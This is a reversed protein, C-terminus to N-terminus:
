GNYTRAQIELEQVFEDAWERPNDAGNVNFTATVNMPNSDSKVKSPMSGALGLAYRNNFMSSISNAGMKVNSLDLVPKIVPNTDIGDTINSLALTRKRLAQVAESGVEDGAIGSKHIWKRLGIVFGEGTFQGSKMAKKSPSGERIAAKIGQLARSGLRYGASYAAALKAPTTIGNTFGSAVNGGSTGASSKGSDLGSSANKALTTGSSKADYKSIADAFAKAVEKGKKAFSDTKIGKLASSMSKTFASSLKDSNESVGSAMTSMANSGANNFAKSNGKSSVSKAISKVSKAVSKTVSEM